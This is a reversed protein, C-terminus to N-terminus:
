LFSSLSFLFMFVYMCRLGTRRAHAGIHKSNEKKKKKKKMMMMMKKKKKKKKKTKNILIIVTQKFM